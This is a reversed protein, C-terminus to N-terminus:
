NYQDFSIRCQLEVVALYRISMTRLAHFVFGSANHINHFQRGVQRNNINCKRINNNNKQCFVLRLLLTDRKSHYAEMTYCSLAFVIWFVVNM